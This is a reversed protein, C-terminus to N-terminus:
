VRLLNEVSQPTLKQSIANLASSALESLGGAKIDSAVKSALKEASDFSDIVDSQLSKIEAKVEKVADKVEAKVAKVDDIQDKVSSQDSKLSDLLANVDEVSQIDAASKGSTESSLKADAIRVTAKEQNGFSLNQIRDGATERNQQDLDSALTKRREEVDQLKARATDIEQADGSKIAKKLDKAAEIQEKVIDKADNLSSEVKNATSIATNAKEVFRTKVSGLAQTARTTFDTSSSDSASSSSKSKSAADSDLQSRSKLQGKETFFGLGAGAVGKTSDAM